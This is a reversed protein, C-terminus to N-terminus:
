NVQTLNLVTLNFTKDLGFKWDVRNPEGHLGNIQDLEDLLEDDDIKM